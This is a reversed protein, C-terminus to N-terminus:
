VQPVQGPEVVADFWEDALLFTEDSSDGAIQWLDDSDRKIFTATITPHQFEVSEGKTQFPQELTQFRGKYLWIYLYSGDAKMSQFGLAFYPPVADASKILMGNEYRYGMLLAQHAINLQTTEIQVEISSFSSATETPGDDGYDTASEGGSPISANVAPALKVPAEYTTGTSTDTLLKAVHLNKLGIQASNSM